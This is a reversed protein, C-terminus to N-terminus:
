NFSRPGLFSVSTTEILEGDSYLDIMVENKDGSLDSQKLEIFLTGEAIGQADVEFTESTSVVNITGDWGRLKFSLNDIDQSTKNVLKFTYVNSIIGNEKHEFLQGPLRLIRAEVDSRLLLMGALIGILITLVAIYGKMRATIKFPEKKEIEDESAFRILGKPLNISEMIHDCEDICATCNVCELQTGNRIDIGTPCVNVCQNCDICDGHGLAERDENKRFKKRGNDAEGRKYDYAVVISKNDLLVGQLRGYPCAIICVQERFWAFVFYFVATFILLPILTGTHEFPGETIYKLLKDGGILYALFVNAILFSIVLFIFWKLVRKRIKEADWKQRDLRMQKNRDGDIWYEIRRFVMELFITQPCIWGCFVRGFGVTFLTIFVVGILMSIVFLYFDQPWFPFGFINFRRELINFLLFQNGNIKIFPAALLFALLFYSVIKRKEYLPGSPKKPFVWKRKGEEDITGISDRFVENDPTEM